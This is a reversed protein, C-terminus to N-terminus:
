VQLFHHLRYKDSNEALYVRVSQLVIGYGHEGKHIYYPVDSTSMRPSRLLPPLTDDDAVPSLSFGHEASSSFNNSESLTYDAALLDYM